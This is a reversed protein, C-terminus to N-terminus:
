HGFYFVLVNNNNWNVAAIVPSDGDTNKSSKLGNLKNIITNLQM